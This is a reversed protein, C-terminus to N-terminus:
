KSELLDLAVLGAAGAAEFFQRDEDFSRGMTTPTVEFAKLADRTASANVRRVEHRHSIRGKDLGTMIQETEDPELEPVAVIAKGMAAIGLAGISHHSLGHHRPRQDTFSVRLTAVPRGGLAAVASLVQGQEMGTHGLATATGVIGPGPSVVTIEAEGIVRAALLGSFVNVSEIDGGFAHGCTITIDILGKQRLEAVLDSHALPLAAGDTMLYALRTTPRLRKIMATAAAVQSHLGCAIVPMEELSVSDALRQHHPSEESEAVVTDLQWPTYRLKLIHGGSDANAETRELNWLVFDDGGTGLDLDVATTNLVVRDGVEVQGTIGVFATAKRNQGDLDVSCRVIGDRSEHLGTVVGTQFHPV